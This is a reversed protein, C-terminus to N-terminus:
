WLCPRTCFCQASCILTAIILRSQLALILLLLLPLLLVLLLVVVLVVVVAAAAAAAKVGDAPVSDGFATTTGM